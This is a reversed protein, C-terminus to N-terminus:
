QEQASWLCVVTHQTRKTLNYNLVTTCQVIQEAIQRGNM